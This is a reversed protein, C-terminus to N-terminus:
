LREPDSATITVTTPSGEDAPTSHTVNEITPASNTVTLIATDEINDFTGTVTWTGAVQATYVNSVWSGGAEPTIAYAADSTADWSNDYADFADLTYFISQGATITATAPALNLSVADAHTVTLVDFL